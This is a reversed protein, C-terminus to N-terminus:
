SKICLKYMATCRFIQKKLFINIKEIEVTIKIAIGGPLNFPKNVMVYKTLLLLLLLAQGDIRNNQLVEFDNYQM